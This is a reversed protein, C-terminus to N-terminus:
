SYSHIKSLISIETTQSDSSTRYEMKWWTLMFGFGRLLKVFRGHPGVSQVEM